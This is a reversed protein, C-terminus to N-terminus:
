SCHCECLDIHPPPHFKYLLPECGFQLQVFLHELDDVFAFPSLGKREAIKPRLSGPMVRLRLHARHAVRLEGRKGSSPLFYSCDAVFPFSRSFERCRSRSFTLFFDHTLYWRLLARSSGVVSMRLDNDAPENISSESRDMAKVCTRVRVYSRFNADAKRTSADLCFFLSALVIMPPRLGFTATREFFSFLWILLITILVRVSLRSADKRTDVGEGSHRERQKETKCHGSQLLLASSAVM